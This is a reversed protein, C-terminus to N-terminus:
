KVWVFPHNGRPSFGWTFWAYDYRDNTGWKFSPRRSFVVMGDPPNAEWFAYRHKAGMFGVRLLAATMMTEARAKTVFALADKFPPNMVVRHGTWDQALADTCVIRDDQAALHAQQEYGVIPMKRGVRRDLAHMLAGTGAGVDLTPVFDPCNNFLASAVWQPTAYYDHPDRERKPKKAGM